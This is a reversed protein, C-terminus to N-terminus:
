HMCYRYISGLGDVRYERAWVCLGKGAAGAMAWGLGVWASGTIGDMIGFPYRRPLYDVVNLM